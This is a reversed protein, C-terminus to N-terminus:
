PESVVERGCRDRAKILRGMRYSRELRVRRGGDVFIPPREPIPALGAGFLLTDTDIRPSQCVITECARACAIKDTVDIQDDMFQIQRVFRAGLRNPGRPEAGDLRTFQSRGPHILRQFISRLARRLGRRGTDASRLVGRCYATNGDMSGVSQRDVYSSSRLGRSHYVLMGPDNLDPMGNRWIVHLAGGRKFNVVAHYAETDVVSWGANPYITRGPARVSRRSTQPLRPRAHLAALCFRAGLVACLDDGCTLLRDFRNTACGERLLRALASAEDTLDTLLELGYPSIFATACSSYCGGVRGDPQVFCALFQIARRLPDQLEPWETQRYLHGLADITLSLRGLDPGGNEPFWGETNQLHLLKGLRQRANRLLSTDRVLPVCDAIACITASELWPSQPRTRSVQRVCREIDGLLSPTEFEKTESILHVIHGLIPGQLSSRRVRRAPRGDSQLSLQWRILSSRVVQRLYGHGPRGRHLELHLAIALAASSQFYMARDEDTANRRQSVNELWPAPRTVRLWHGVLKEAVRRYVSRGSTVAVDQVLHNADPAETGSPDERLRDSPPADAECVPLKDVFPGTTM